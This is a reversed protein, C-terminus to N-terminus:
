LVVAEPCLKNSSRGKCSQVSLLRIRYVIGDARAVLFPGLAPINGWWPTEESLGLHSSSSTLVVLNGTNDVDPPLSPARGLGFQWGNGNFPWGIDLAPAIESVRGPYCQSKRGSAPACYSTVTFFMGRVLLTRGVLYKPTRRVLMKVESVSYIRDRVRTCSAQIFILIAICVLLLVLTIRRKM